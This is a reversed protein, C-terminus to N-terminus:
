IMTIAGICRPELLISNTAGRKSVVQICHVIPKDRNPLQKLSIQEKAGMKCPFLQKLVFYKFIVKVKSIYKPVLQFSVVAALPLWGSPFTCNKKLM